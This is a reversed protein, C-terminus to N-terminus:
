RRANKPYARLLVFRLKCGEIMKQEFFGLYPVMLSIASVAVVAIESATQAREQPSPLQSRDRLCETSVFSGLQSEIKELLSLRETLADVALLALITIIIGEALSAQFRGLLALIGVGGAVVITMLPVLRSIKLWHKWTRQSGTQQM